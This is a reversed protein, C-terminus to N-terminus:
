TGCVKEYGWYIMSAAKPYYLFRNFIDPLYANSKVYPIQKLAPHGKKRLLIYALVAALLPWVVAGAM